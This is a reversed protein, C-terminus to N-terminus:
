GEYQFNCITALKSATIIDLKQADEFSLYPSFEDDIYILETEV